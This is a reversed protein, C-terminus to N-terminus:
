CKVRLGNTNVKPPNLIDDMINTRDENFDKRRRLQQEEASIVPEVYTPDDHEDWYLAYKRDKPNKPEASSSSPETEGDSGGDDLESSLNILTQLPTL